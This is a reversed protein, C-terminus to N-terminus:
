IVAFQSLYAPVGMTMYRMSDELEKVEDPRDDFFSTTFCWLLVDRMVHPLGMVSATDSWMDFMRSCFPGPTAYTCALVLSVIGDPYDVAFQQAIMGGM